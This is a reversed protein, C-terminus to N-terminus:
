ILCRASHRMGCNCGAFKKPTAYVGTFAQYRSSVVKPMLRAKVIYALNYHSTNFFLPPM